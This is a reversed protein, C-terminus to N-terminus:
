VIKKSFFQKVIDRYMKLRAYFGRIFGLKEEKMTHSANALSVELLKLNNDKVYRTLAIEIGFGANWYEDPISEYLARTSARQGSLFPAVKQALDTIGRGSNFIGLTMDAKDEIIPNTLDDIYSEKMNTLEADLFLVVPSGTNKLGMQMAKSKGANKSLDIVTFGFSRAVESTKDASGDNVILVNYKHKFNTLLALISSINKEENYAPIIIDALMDSWSEFKM